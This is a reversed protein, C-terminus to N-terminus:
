LLIYPLDGLLYGYSYSITNQSSSYRPKELKSKKQLDGVCMITPTRLLQTEWFIRYGATLGCYICWWFVKGAIIVKYLIFQWCTVTPGFPGLNGLQSCIHAYRELVNEYEWWKQGCSLWHSYLFILSGWIVKISRPHGQFSMRLMDRKWDCKRGLITQFHFIQEWVLKLLASYFVNVFFNTCFTCFYIKKTFTSIFMHMKEKVALCTLGVLIVIVYSILALLASIM